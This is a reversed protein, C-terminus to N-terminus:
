NTKAKLILVLGSKLLTRCEERLHHSRLIEELGGNKVYDRFGRYHSGGALYEVTRAVWAWINEPLPVQFDIFVLAGDQRVVRKMESVAKEQSVKDRDHLGFSISVYDFYDNPYPLNAANGLQFSTNAPCQKERNRAAVNLMDPHIDIGTAVIGHRGYEIVQAGTGCCVDLVRDGSSMGAFRPISQRVDRLIPDVITEYNFIYM